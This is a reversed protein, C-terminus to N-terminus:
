KTIKFNNATHYTGDGCVIGVSVGFRHSEITHIGKNDQCAEIAFALQEKTINCGTVTLLLLLGLTIKNTKMLTPM